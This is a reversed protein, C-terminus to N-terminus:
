GNLDRKSPLPDMIKNSRGYWINMLRIPFQLIPLTERQQLPNKGGDVPKM